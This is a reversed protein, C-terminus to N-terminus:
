SPDAYGPLSETGNDKLSVAPGDHAKLLEMPIALHLKFHHAEDTYYDLKAENGYAYRLRKEINILGTRSGPKPWQHDGLNDTEIHFVGNETYISVSAENGPQDLSGHKFINEVLTLLVLPILYLERAEEEYYLRFALEYNKRMQNLYLLNEVQDIEEGFCIFDGMKDSDIAFRMMESLKIVADAAVPSTADINHYIFDLTNFLLHPNIQAKLFANQAKTLEQESKQRYIIDKLRQKELENTKKKEKIYTMLFYYGTAFGLFYIARYLMKLNYLYSLRFGKQYAVIHAAMLAKDIWYSIVIYVAIEFALILPLRWFAARKDKLSWPLFLGAHTYFLIFITTYHVAYTLPHGFKGSVLGIVVSEYLIFLAWILIHLRYKRLWNEIIRKM